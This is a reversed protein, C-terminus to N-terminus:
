KKTPPNKPYYARIPNAWMADEAAREEAAVPVLAAFRPVLMPTHEALYAEIARPDVLGAKLVEVMDAQDRLRNRLLKSCFVLEVPALPVEESIVPADLAPDVFEGIADRQIYDVRVGGIEHAIDRRL